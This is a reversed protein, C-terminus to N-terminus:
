GLTARLALAHTPIDTTFVDAGLELMRGITEDDNVAWAGVSLGRSRLAGLVNADMRNARLSVSRVGVEAAVAFIGGLGIADQVAPSVLWIVEALGEITAAEAVVDAQFSTVVTRARMDQADLVELAQALLGRYPVHAQDAKVEMRLAIDTPAFIAALEALTLMHEDETVKLSLAKLEGLTREAVPGSGSTTRDLTADHIVVIEGDATPHIDFEVQDVGLAATNRFATPSNEAWLLAGGRHSAILTM